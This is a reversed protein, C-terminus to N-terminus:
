KSHITPFYKQKLLQCRTINPISNISFCQTEIVSNWQQCKSTSTIYSNRQNDTEIWKHLKMLSFSMGKEVKMLDEATRLFVYSCCFYFSNEGSYQNSHIETITLPKKGSPFHPCPCPIYKVIIFCLRRSNSSFGDQHLILWNLQELLLISITAM